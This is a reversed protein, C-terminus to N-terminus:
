AARSHLHSPEVKGGGGRWIRGRPATGHVQCAIPCLTWLAQLRCQTWGATQWPSCGFREKYDLGGIATRLPPARVRSRGALRFLGIGLSAFRAGGLLVPSHGLREPARGLRRVYQMVARWREPDCKVEHSPM